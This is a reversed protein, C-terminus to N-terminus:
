STVEELPIREDALVLEVHKLQGVVGSGFEVKFARGDPLKGRVTSEGYHVARSDLEEGDLYLRGRNVIVGTKDFEFEVEHEGVSAKYTKTAYMAMTM